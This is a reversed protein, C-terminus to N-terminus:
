QKKEGDWFKPRGITRAAPRYDTPCREACAQDDRLWIRVLSYAGRTRGDVMQTRDWTEVNWASNNGPSESRIPVGTVGKSVTIVEIRYNIPLIPLDESLRRVVAAEIDIQDSRATTRLWQDLLGNVEANDYGWVNQGRPNQPSKLNRGDIRPINSEFAASVGSLDTTPFSYSPDSQVALPVRGVEVDGHVHVQGLRRRSM